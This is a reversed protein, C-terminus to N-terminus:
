STAIKKALTFGDLDDVGFTPYALNASAQDGYFFNFIVAYDENQANELYYEHLLKYATKDTQGLQTKLQQHVFIEQQLHDELTLLRNQRQKWFLTRYCQALTRQRVLEQTYVESTWFFPTCFNREVLANLRFKSDFDTAYRNTWGGEFDDALNFAVKIITKSSYNVSLGAAVEAIIEEVDLDKLEQLKAIVIPKGMPNFGGIPLRMDGKTEGQLAQLYARFRTPTPPQQYIAEMTELVALCEFKMVAPNVVKFNFYFCLNAKSLEGKILNRKNHM